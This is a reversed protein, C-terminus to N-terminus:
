DYVLEWILRLRVVCMLSGHSSFYDIDLSYDFCSALVYKPDSFYLRNRTKSWGLTCMLTFFLTISYLVQWVKSRLFGAPNSSNPLLSARFDHPIDKSSPIKYEWTSDTILQSLYVASCASGILIKPNYFVCM